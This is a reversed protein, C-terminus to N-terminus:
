QTIIYQLNYFSFEPIDSKQNVGEADQINLLYNQSHQFLCSSIEAGSNALYFSPRWVDQLRCYICSLASCGEVSDSFQHRQYNSLEIHSFKRGNGKIQHFKVDCLADEPNYLSIPWFVKRVTNHPTYNTLFYNDGATGHHVPRGVLRPICLVSPQQTLVFCPM